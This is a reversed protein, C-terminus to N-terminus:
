GSNRKHTHTHTHSRSLTHSHTHLCSLLQAIYFLARGRRRRRQWGDRRNTGAVVRVWESIKNNIVLHNSVLSSHVRRLAWVLRRM